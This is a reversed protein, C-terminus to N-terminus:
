KVFGYVSAVPIDYRTNTISLLPISGVNNLYDKFLNNNEYNRPDEGDYGDFGALFIRSAKGSTAIALAYGVVLSSPLVSFTSAFMFKDKELGIGFDLVKKNRLANRVEDPLMSYPTILPQPLGAHTQCDALLRIPHCAIRYDILGSDISSQTNLALVIPKNNKIFDQLALRHKEVGPGTGLLLVDRDKFVTDPAWTGSPEGRYFERADDLLNLSFKKGGVRRLYDIVAFIDEESFRPDSLMEQVYTPHIGYKGALYYYPNTGWGCKEQLPKFSERILAMLPVLNVQKSSLEGLEIVLEETRANGPGRGMGTVTSDVWSVGVSLAMLTNSLALGLNDHTHIGLPGEWKSRLLQVLESVKEPGMSGMSDAFYLVDLPYNSASAALELIESESRDAVQMLNFGVLYGKNKLWKAAPLARSFEHVHCAVRVLAVPSEEACSPFLNELVEVLSNEGFFESANVMVGLKIGEPINLTAIFSDSTFACPGAYGSNKLSRLGLEVVDVCAAKMAVLYQNILSPSFDWSNYYGGDRLTCDLHTIKMDGGFNVFNPFSM